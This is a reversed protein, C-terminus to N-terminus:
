PLLAILMTKSNGAMQETIPHIVLIYPVDGSPRVALSKWGEGNILGRSIKVVLLRCRIFLADVAAFIESVGTADGTVLVEIRGRHQPSPSSSFGTGHTL